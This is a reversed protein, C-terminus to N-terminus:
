LSWFFNLTPFNGATFIYGREKRVCVDAEVRIFKAIALYNEKFFAIDTKRRADSIVWLPCSKEAGEVTKDCFFYPEKNRKEEGWKIM